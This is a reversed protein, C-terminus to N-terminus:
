TELGPYGAKSYSFPEPNGWFDLLFDFVEDITGDVVPTSKTRYYWKTVTYGKETKEIEGVGWDENFFVKDGNELLKILEQKAEELNWEYDGFHCTPNDIILRRDFIHFHKIGELRYNDKQPIRTRADNWRKVDDKLKQLMEDTVEVDIGYCPCIYRYEKVINTCGGGPTNCKYRTDSVKIANPCIEPIYKKIIETM